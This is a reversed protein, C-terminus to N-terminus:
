KHQLEYYAPVAIPSCGLQQVFYTPAWLYLTDVMNNDAIHCLMISLAAPNRLVRWEVAKKAVTKAVKDQDAAQRSSGGADSSGLQQPRKNSVLVQWLVAVAATAVGYSFCM